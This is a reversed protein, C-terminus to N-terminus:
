PTTSTPCPDWFTGASDRKCNYDFVGGIAVKAFYNTTWAGATCNDGESDCGVGTGLIAMITEDWKGGTGSDGGTVNTSILLRDEFENRTPRTM